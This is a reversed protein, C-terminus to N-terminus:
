GFAPILWPLRAPAVGVRLRCGYVRSLIDDRMVQRPSGTRMIQGQAMLVMEDAIQASLNLDHMVAVVGGGARAFRGLIGLVELQHGIDLSAVPEDLMLWRPGAHSTAQWVQARVRALHARARQGGSLAHIPRRAQGALGVEALAAAVIEDHAAEIGAQLGLRVVEEVTFDFAVAPSQELVGRLAAQRWSPTRSLEHGQLRISGRYPLEGACARLLTSKGSGNPGLIVTIQGPRADLDIGRLVPARGLSVHLDAIRLM